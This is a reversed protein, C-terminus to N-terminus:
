YKEYIYQLLIDKTNHNPNKICYDLCDNLIESFLPSPEYGTNILDDGSIALDKISFAEKNNLIEKYTEIINIRDDESTYLGLHNKRDAIQLDLLDEFLDEGVKNLLKKISTKNNELKFDHYQILTLVKDITCKQYKMRILINRTINVSQEPHHYFHKVLHEEDKTGCVMKGVDHFLAALKLYLDDTKISACTLICHTYIDYLHYSSNHTYNSLQYMEPIIAKIIFNCLRYKNLIIDNNLDRVDLNFNMIIENFENTIIEIPLKSLKTHNKYIANLTNKGITFDYKVSYEIAKLMLLPNLSLEAIPENICNIEKNLLDDLGNIPNVLKNSLNDLTNSLFDNLDLGMAMMKFKSNSLYEIINSLFEINDLAYKDTVDLYKRFTYIYFHINHARIIVGYDYCYLEICDVNLKDKNNQCINFITTPLASTFINYEKIQKELLIDILCEGVFYLNYKEQNFIDNLERLTSIDLETM